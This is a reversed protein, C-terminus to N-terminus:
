THHKLCCPCGNMIHAQRSDAEKTDRHEKVSSLELLPRPGSHLLSKFNVDGEEPVHSLCGGREKRENNIQATKIKQLNCENVELNKKPISFGLQQKCFIACAEWSRGHIDMQCLWQAGGRDHPWDSIYTHKRCM